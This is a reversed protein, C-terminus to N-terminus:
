EGKAARAAWIAEKRALRARRRLKAEGQRRREDHSM